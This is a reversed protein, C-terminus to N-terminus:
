APVPIVFDQANTNEDGEATGLKAGALRWVGNLCDSTFIAREAGDGGDAPHDSVAVSAVQNWRDRIVVEDTDADTFAGIINAGASAVKLDALTVVALGNVSDAM